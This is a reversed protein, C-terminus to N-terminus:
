QINTKIQKTYPLPKIAQVAADVIPTKYDRGNCFSCATLYKKDYTLQKIKVKLTNLSIKEDSLDVIENEDYPIAQLNTGNASFPCRYLKGHLLSLLDSSCCNDFVRRREEETRQQFPLIRGCDQWETVVRSSHAINNDDLIKILEDVKKKKKDLLGYNTIDLIVKENKLHELDEKKPIIRANTYIAIKQVQVYQVLNDIIKYLDKNMFPDGGIVRFEYVNDVCAMFRKISKLMLNLDSNEPRTYYQMLNSCDKCKLSCRETIQIDISKINLAGSSICEDKMCMNKYFAIMREIKLPEISLNSNLFDTKELLEVCNYINSFNNKELQPIISSVYNNSIFINTKSDFKQLEEPSIIKINSKLKKQKIKSSDCFFDVNINKQKMAYLCLEGFDTAGYLVVKENNGKLINPLDNINYKIM